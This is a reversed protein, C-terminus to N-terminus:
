RRAADVARNIPAIHTWGDLEWINEYEPLIGHRAQALRYRQLAVEWKLYETEEETGHSSRLAHRLMQAALSALQDKLEGDTM